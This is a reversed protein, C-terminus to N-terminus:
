AAPEMPQKKGFEINWGARSLMWCTVAAVLMFAVAGYVLPMEGGWPLPALACLALVPDIVFLVVGVFTILAVNSLTLPIMVVFVQIQNLDSSARSMLQGTQARDHYGVHLALIHQLLRERLKTETWRSERFAVYRRLATFTGTVVGACAILAAWGWASQSGLLSEDIALRTLQPVAVKGVTWALGIVVGLM